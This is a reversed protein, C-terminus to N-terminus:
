TRRELKVLRGGILFESVYLNGASDSALGHPSNFRGPQLAAPRVPRHEHDLQNPFGPRGAADDDSGLHGLLADDEDLVTLRSELDAVVLLGGVVTFASPRRFYSADGVVRKFRGALDFVQLRQNVRDSVYLEPADHRRDIWVAHPCDFRGAGELGTLSMVYSGDSRFRHVLNEGYGDAVWVDGTGDDADDVAIGTPRYRGTRYADLAPATLTMLREGTLSLLVAAPPASGDHNAYEGHADRERRAGNDAIWLVEQGQWRSALLGHGQTVGTDFTTRVSGDQGLVYADTRDHGVVVVDGSATVAIGSHIWATSEHETRAGLWQNWPETWAYAPGGDIQLTTAPGSQQATV